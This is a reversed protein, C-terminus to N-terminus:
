ASRYCQECQARRASCAAGRRCRCCAACTRACACLPRVIIFRATWAPEKPPEANEERRLEESLESDFVKPKQVEVHQAPPSTLEVGGGSERQTGSMQLQAGRRM